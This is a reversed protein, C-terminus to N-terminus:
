YIRMTGHTKHKKRDNGMRWSPFTTELRRAERRARRGKM